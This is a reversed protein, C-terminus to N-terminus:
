LSIDALEFFIIRIIAGNSLIMCQKLIYTTEKQINTTKERINIITKRKAQQFLLYM